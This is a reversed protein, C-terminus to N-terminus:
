RVSFTFFSLHHRRFIRWEDNNRTLINCDFLAFFFRVIRVCYFFDECMTRIKRRKCHISSLTFGESDINRGTNWNKIVHFFTWGILLWGVLFSCICLCSTLPSFFLSLVLSHSISCNRKDVFSRCTLRVHVDSVHSTTYLVFKIYLLSFISM